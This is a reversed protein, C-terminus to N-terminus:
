SRPAKSLTPGAMTTLYRLIKASDAGSLNARDGMEDLDRRWQEGSRVEPSYLMHCGSCKSVYLARDSVM